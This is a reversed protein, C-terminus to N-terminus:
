RNHSGFERRSCEMCYFALAPPEDLEPDDTRYAKWRWASPSSVRECEACTLVHAEAVPRGEEM